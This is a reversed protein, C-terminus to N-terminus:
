NHLVSCRSRARKARYCIVVTEREFTLRVVITFNSPVGLHKALQQQLLGVTVGQYAPRLRGAQAQFWETAQRYFQGFSQVDERKVATRCLGLDVQCAPVTSRPLPSQLPPRPKCNRTPFHRELSRKAWCRTSGSLRRGCEPCEIQCPGDKKPDGIFTYRVGKITRQYVVADRQM